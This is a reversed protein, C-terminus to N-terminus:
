TEEGFRTSEFQAFPTAVGLEAAISELSERHEAGIPIGNLSYDQQRQWEMGGALEAQDQGPFPRMARAEGVYRDMERKFEDVPMFAEVAFVAIFAGQNAEWPSRPPVFEPKYIGALVGGLGQLVAALGLQKFFAWPFRGFDEEDWPVFHCGMDLVLPPQGGGPLGFSIPSGGSAGMVSKNPDLGYRHSSVAIALCDREIAMRTYKSAGGFHFHNRTTLAASGNKLACEIAWETGAYCPLHGMGGDGDLVRTTAMERVVSIKPAPNVKGELMLRVYGHTQRTGHSVVGRLDTQVLLDALRKADTDPAGAAAFLRHVLEQLPATPVRIGSPPPLNV